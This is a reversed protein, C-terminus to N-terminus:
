QLEKQKLTQVLERLDKVLKRLQPGAMGSVPVSMPDYRNKIAKNIQMVDGNTLKMNGSGPEATKYRKM